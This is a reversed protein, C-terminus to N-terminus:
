ILISSSIMHIAYRSWFNYCYWLVMISVEAVSAADHINVNLLICVMCPRSWVDYILISLPLVSIRCTTSSIHGKAYPWWIAWVVHDRHSWGLSKCSRDHQKGRVAIMRVTKRCNWGWWEFDVFNTVFSPLVPLHWISHAAGPLIMSKQLTIKINAIQQIILM